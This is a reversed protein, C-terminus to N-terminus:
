AEPVGRDLLLHRLMSRTSPESPAPLRAAVRLALHRMAPEPVAALLAVLRPGHDEGVLSGAWYEVAAARKDAPVNHLARRVRQVLEPGARLDRADTSMTGRLDPKGVQGIKM